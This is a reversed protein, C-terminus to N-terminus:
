APSQDIWRAGIFWNHFDNVTPARNCWYVQNSGANPSADSWGNPYFGSLNSNPNKVFRTAM